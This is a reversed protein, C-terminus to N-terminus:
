MGLACVARKSKRKGVQHHKGLLLHIVRALCNAPLGPPSVVSVLQVEWMVLTTALIQCGQHGVPISILGPKAQHPNTLGLAREQRHM